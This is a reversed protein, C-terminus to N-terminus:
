LAIRSSRLLRTESNQESEPLYGQSFYPGGKNVVVVVAGSEVILQINDSSTM